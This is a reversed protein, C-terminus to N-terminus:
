RCGCSEDLHPRRNGFVLVGCGDASFGFARHLHGPTRQPPMDQTLNVFVGTGVQSRWLDFRGDHDAVFIVFKGDPSIEALGETGDWPTFLSVRADALPNEIPPPNRRALLAM